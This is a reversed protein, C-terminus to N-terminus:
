AGYSVFCSTYKLVVESVQTLPNNTLSQHICSLLDGSHLSWFWTPLSDQEWGRSKGESLPNPWSDVSAGLLGTMIITSNGLIFHLYLLSSLIWLTVLSLCRFDGIEYIFSSAVILWCPYVTDCFVKEAFFSESNKAPLNSFYLENLKRRSSAAVIIQIYESM